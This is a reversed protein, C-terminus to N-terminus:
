LLSLNQSISRIYSFFEKAPGPGSSLPRGPKDPRRVKGMEDDNMGVVGVAVVLLGVAHVAHRGYRRQLLLVLRLALVHKEDIGAVGYLVM